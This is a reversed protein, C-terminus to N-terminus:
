VGFQEHGTPTRKSRFNHLERKIIQALEHTDPVDIRDGDLTADVISVLRDKPVHSYWGHETEHLGGTIIVPLIRKGVIAHLVQEFVAEGVGTADGVITLHSDRFKKHNVMMKVDDIIARYETGLPYRHAGIMEVWFLTDKRQTVEFTICATFDNRKGLDLSVFIEEPEM